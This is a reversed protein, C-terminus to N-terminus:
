EVNFGIEPKIPCIYKCKYKKRVHPIKIKEMNVIEKGDSNVIDIKLHSRVIEIKLSARTIDLQTDNLITELVRDSLQITM